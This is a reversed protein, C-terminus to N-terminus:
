QWHRFSYVVGQRGTDRRFRLRRDGPYLADGIPVRQIPPSRSLERARLRWNASAPFRCPVGRTTAASAPAPAPSAPAAEKGPPALGGRPAMLAHLFVVLDAQSAIKCDSLRMTYDSFYPTNTLIISGKGFAENVSWEAILVDGWQPGSLVRQTVARQFHLSPVNFVRKTVVEMGRLLREAAPDFVNESFRAEAARYMVQPMTPGSLVARDPAPGSVSFDFPEQGALEQSYTPLSPAILGLTLTLAILTPRKMTYDGSFSRARRGPYPRTFCSRGVVTPGRQLSPPLRPRRSNIPGLGPVHLVDFETRSSPSGSTTRILTWTPGSDAAPGIAGNGSVVTTDVM